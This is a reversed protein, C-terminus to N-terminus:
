PQYAAMRGRDPTWIRPPGLYGLRLLKARLEIHQKVDSVVRRKAEDLGTSTLRNADRWAAQHMHAKRRHLDFGAALNEQSKSIGSFKVLDEKTDQALKPALIPLQMDIMSGNLLPLDYGRIYHGTVIDAANYAERFAELMDTTEYEGLLMCEVPSSTGIWKWAVATLEKSVYDANIWSLPRAECDFDLIRAKRAVRLAFKPTPSL